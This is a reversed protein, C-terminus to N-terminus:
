NVNHIDIKMPKFTNATVAYLLNIINFSPLTESTIRMVFPFGLSVGRSISQYLARHPGDSLSLDNWCNTTRVNDSPSKVKMSHVDGDVLVLFRATPEFYNKVSITVEYDNPAYKRIEAFFNCYGSSYDFSSKGNITDIMQRCGVEFGVRNLDIYVTELLISPLTANDIRVPIFRINGKAKRILANQWELKVMGSNLSNQSIFFFFFDCKSLADNMKEIIGDGPIISWSDYFVNNQGYVSALRKAIPEVIEKDKSKHSIFIYM